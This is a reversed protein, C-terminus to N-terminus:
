RVNMKGEQFEVRTSKPDVASNVESEVNNVKSTVTMTVWTAPRLGLNRSLEKISEYVQDDLTVTIRTSGANNQPM